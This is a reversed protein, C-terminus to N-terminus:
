GGFQAERVGPSPPSAEAVLGYRLADVAHDETKKGKIADALDEADLPDVVM